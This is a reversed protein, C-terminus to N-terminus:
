LGLGVGEQRGHEGHSGGVTGTDLGKARFQGVCLEDGRGGNASGKAVREKGTSGVVGGLDGGVKNLALQGRRLIDDLVAVGRGVVADGVDVQALHNIAELDDVTVHVDVNVAVAIDDRITIREVLALALDVNQRDLIPDLLLGLGETLSALQGKSAPAAASTLYRYMDKLLM